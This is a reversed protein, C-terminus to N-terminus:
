LDWTCRDYSAIKKRQASLLREQDSVTFCKVITNGLRKRYASLREQDSVTFCKVITNGLVKFFDPDSLNVVSDVFGIGADFKVVLVYDAYLYVTFMTVWLSASASSGYCTVLISVRKTEDHTSLSVDEDPRLQGIFETLWELLSDLM